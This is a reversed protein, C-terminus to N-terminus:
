KLLPLKERCDKCFEKGKRDTDYLSNSFHMVCGTNKCHNLGFAHGLEHVAEKIAREYYLEKDCPLGYFEQRLRPLAILAVKGNLSAEGFVFNLGPTYLDLNVVGLIKDKKELNEGKLNKLILDACYQNRRKNYAYEPKPLPKGTEVSCSFIQATQSALYDLLDKDVISGERFSM